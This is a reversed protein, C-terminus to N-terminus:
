LLEGCPGWVITIGRLYPLAFASQLNFDMPFNTEIDGNYYIVLEGGVVRDEPLSEPLSCVARILRSASSSGATKWATRRFIREQPGSAIPHSRVCEILLSGISRRCTRSIM